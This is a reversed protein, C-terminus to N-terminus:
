FDGNRWMAESSRLSIQCSSAWTSKSGTEEEVNSFEKL